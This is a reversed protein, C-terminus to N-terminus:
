YRDLNWTGVGRTVTRGYWCLYRTLTRGLMFLLGGKSNPVGEGLRLFGWGRRMERSM